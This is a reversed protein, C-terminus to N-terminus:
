TTQNTTTSTNTFSLTLEQPNDDPVEFQGTDSLVGDPNYGEVDTANIQAPYSFLNGEEHRPQYANTTTKANTILPSSAMSFSIFYERDNGSVTVPTDNISDGTILWSPVYNSLIKYRWIYTETDVMLVADHDDAEIERKISFDKASQNMQTSVGDIHTNFFDYFKKPIAGLASYQTGSTADALMNSQMRKFQFLMNGAKAYPSSDDTFLVDQTKTTTFKVNSVTSSGSQTTYKVYMQGGGNTPEHFGSFSYNVPADVLATGDPSINDVHYPFAPIIALYTTDHLDALQEAHSIEVGEGLFDAVALGGRFFGASAYKGSMSSDLDSNEYIKSVKSRMGRWSSGPFIYTIYNGSGDTPSQVLYVRKLKGSISIALDDVIESRGFRGTFPGAVISFMEDPFPIYLKQTDITGAM